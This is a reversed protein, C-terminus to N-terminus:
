ASSSSSSSSAADKQSFSSSPLSTPLQPPENFKALHAATYLGHLEPIKFVDLYSDCKFCWFSLDALSIGMCHGEKEAHEVMHKNKYRSCFAKSCAGCIWVEDESCVSCLEKTAIKEPVVVPVEALHPCYEKPQVSFGASEDFEEGLERLAAAIAAADGPDM